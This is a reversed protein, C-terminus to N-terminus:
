DLLLQDLNDLYWKRLFDYKLLIDFWSYAQKSDEVELGWNSDGDRSYINIVIDRSLRLQAGNQHYSKLMYHHNASTIFLKDMIGAPLKKANSFKYFRHNDSNLISTNVNFDYDRELFKAFSLLTDAVQSIRHPDAHNYYDVIFLQTLAHSDFRLIKLDLNLYFLNEHYQRDQYYVGRDDKSQRDVNFTFQDPSKLGSITQYARMSKTKTVLRGSLHHIALLRSMFMLHYDASQYQHPFKVYETGLHYTILQKVARLLTLPQKTTILQHILKTFRNGNDLGRQLAANYQKLEQNADETKTM